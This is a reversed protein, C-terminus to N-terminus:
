GYIDPYKEKLNPGKRGGFYGGEVIYTVREDWDEKYHAALMDCIKTQHAANYVKATITAEFGEACYFTITANKM